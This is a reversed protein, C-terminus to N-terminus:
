CCTNRRIFHTLCVLWEVDQNQAACAENSWVHHSLSQPASVGHREKITAARVIRQERIEFRDLAISATLEAGEFPSFPVSDNIVRTVHRTM